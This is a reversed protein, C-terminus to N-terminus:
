VEKGNQEKKDPEKQIAAKQGIKNENGNRIRILNEKHRYFALATFVLSVILTHLFHEKGHDMIAIWLPFITAIVLSGVSVYKTIAVSIAFAAIYLPIGLPDHAAMVGSTVAIGKGGKFHLWFPYNHGLVVGLGAYLGLLDAYEEQSFVAYRFLFMPIFAKLVDGLYTVAGAKKGLTRMTNTTGINGSGYDRIDVHYFKGVIYGTSICGFGYGVFLCILIRWLM